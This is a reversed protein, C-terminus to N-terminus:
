QFVMTFPATITAPLGADVRSIEDYEYMNRTGYVGSVCRDPSEDYYSNWTISQTTTSKRAYFKNSAPNYLLQGVSVGSYGEIFSYATGTCNTSTYYPRAGANYLIRLNTWVVFILLYGKATFFANSGVAYGLYNSNADIVKVYRGQVLIVWASGNYIYSNGTVTNFYAQNLQPSAPDSDFSGLWQISVGNSGNSGDVGDQAILRWATGDCFYGAGDTTNRYADYEHTADCAYPAAAFDGIWEFRLSDTEGIVSPSTTGPAAANDCGVWVLVLLLFLLKKM